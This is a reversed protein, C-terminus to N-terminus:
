TATTRVRFSERVVEYDEKSITCDEVMKEVLLSIMESIENEMPGVEKITKM